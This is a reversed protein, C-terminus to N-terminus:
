IRKDNETDELTDHITITTVVRQTNNQGLERVSVAKRYKGYASPTISVTVPKCTMDVQFTEGRIRATSVRSRFPSAVTRIM